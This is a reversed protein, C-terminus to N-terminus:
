LTLVWDLVGTYDSKNWEQIILDEDLRMVSPYVDTMCQYWLTMADDAVVPIHDNTYATSWKVADSSSALSGSTNWQVITVWIVRGDNVPDDIAGYGLSDFSSAQGALTMSLQMDWSSWAAVLQVVVPVGHGAFDYLDVLDGFQDPMEARPLRTGVACADKPDPETLLDKDRNYPWGGVYPLSLADLPDTGADAEDGDGYGDGDTDADYPDTGASTEDADSVGDADADPAESSTDGTEEPLETDPATETPDTDVTDQTDPPEGSDGTDGTDVSDGTASSDATDATEQPDTKGPRAGTDSPDPTSCALLLVTWM